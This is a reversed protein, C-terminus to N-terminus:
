QQLVRQPPTYHLISLHCVAGPNYILDKTVSSPELDELQQYPTLVLVMSRGTSLLETAEVMSAVQSLGILVRHRM